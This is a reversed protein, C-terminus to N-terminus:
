LIIAQIYYTLFKKINEQHNKKLNNLISKQSQNIFFKEDEISTTDISKCTYKFNKQFYEEFFLLSCLLCIHYNTMFDTHEITNLTNLFHPIAVSLNGKMISLHIILIEVSNKELETSSESILENLLNNNIFLNKEFNIKNNCLQSMRFLKLRIANVKSYFDERFTNKICERYLSYKSEASYFDGAAICLNTLVLERAANGPTLQSALTLYKIAAPIDERCIELKSSINLLPISTENQSNKINTLYNEAEDYNGHEIYTNCLAANAWEDKDKDSLEKYFDIALSYNKQMRLFRGTFQNVVTMNMNKQILEKCLTIGNSIDQNIEAEYLSKYKDKKELATKIRAQLQKKSFPKLIYDDPRFEIISRVVFSSSDGTIMIFISDFNLLKNHRIDDLIQKGNLGSGLNYDCLVIKFKNLKLLNLASKSEKAWMINNEKVGMERLMGKLAYIVTQSDDVILIKHNKINM